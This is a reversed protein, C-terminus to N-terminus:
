VKFSYACFGLLIIYPLSSFCRSLSVPVSLTTEGNEATTNNGDVAEDDSPGEAEFIEPELPRGALMTDIALQRQADRMHSLYFRSASSYGDKVLGTLKRQGNRTVDGKLADTGAYQRSIADGNNAWVSQLIRVLSEPAEEQLPSILGLRRFQSLAVVQSIAGQVVNTRDLCDVCNTRIVGKQRLVLEGSKDIWCYGIETLKDKMAAVLDAVKHFKLARCHYHFDFSIYGLDPSNM